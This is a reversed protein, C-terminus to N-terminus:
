LGHGITGLFNWGMCCRSQSWSWGCVSIIRKHLTEGNFAEIENIQAATGSNIVSHWQSGDWRAMNGVVIGGASTFNGVVYLENNFIEIDFVAGEIGSGLSSWSTGDWMAIGSADINEIANFYGGAYFRNNITDTFTKFIIGQCKLGTGM